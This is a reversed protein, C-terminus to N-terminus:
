EVGAVEEFVKVLAAAARSWSFCQARQLGQAIMAQRTAPQRLVARLHEVMTEVDDAAFFRAADQCVERTAPLDSTVVATGCAMAEALPLGFTELYSPLVFVAARRYLRVLVEPPVRGLFHVQEAIRLRECQRRLAQTLRRNHTAGAVVLRLDSEPCSARLRAFANFLSEFNKHHVISSVTLVYPGADAVSLGTPAPPGPSFIPSVGYHVVATKEPAIHLAALMASRVAESVCVCRAARRLTLYALPERTLRCGLLRARQWLPQFTRLPAYFNPNQVLAMRPCPAAIASIESLSFFCDFGGRRVLRPVQVQLYSWRAAATWPVDAEIVNIGKPMTAIFKRQYRRSLMVHFVHGGPSQALAPLMNRLYTAQGGERAITADILIRM